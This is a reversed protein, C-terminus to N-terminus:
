LRVEPQAPDVAAKGGFASNPGLLPLLGARDNNAIIALNEAVVLADFEWVDLGVPTVGYRLERQRSPIITFLPGNAFPVM